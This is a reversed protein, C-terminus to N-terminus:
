TDGETNRDPEEADLQTYMRFLTVREAQPPLRLWEDIQGSTLAWTDGFRGVFHWKFDQYLRWALSEGQRLEQASPAEGLHDALIALALDAPGSGGYGWEFGDPSHLPYHKLDHAEGPGTCVIVRRGGSATRPSYRNGLYRKGKWVPPLQGERAAEEMARELIDAACELTELSEGEAEQRAMRFAREADTRDTM